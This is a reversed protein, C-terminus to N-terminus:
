PMRKLSLMVGVTSKLDLVKKAQQAAKRAEEM